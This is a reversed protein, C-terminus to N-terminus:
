NPEYELSSHHLVIRLKGKDDKVFGWSKDVSTVGQPGTFHVKGMSSATNGSIFLAANDIQCDQWGKLAFGTDDPYAPDGAVFYSLAGEHNTRFTQPKTALTPKFLVPGLQYAYAEAIVQDALERAAAKGSNQHADSIELLKTCWNEQAAVLEAETISRDPLEYASASTSVFLLSCLAYRPIIKM